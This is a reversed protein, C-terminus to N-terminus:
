RLPQRVQACGEGPGSGMSGGHMWEGPQLPVHLHHQPLVMCMVGQEGQWLAEGNQLLDRSVWPLAPRGSTSQKKQLGSKKPITPSKGM